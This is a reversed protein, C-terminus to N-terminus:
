AIEVGEPDLGVTYDENKLDLKIDWGQMFDVGIIMERPMEDIIYFTGDLFKGKMKIEISCYNSASFAKKGNVGNFVLPKQRKSFHQVVKNAIDRRILSRCAGSDLLVEVNTKGKDAYVPLNKIIKRMTYIIKHIITIINLAVKVFKCM